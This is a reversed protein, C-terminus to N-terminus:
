MRCNLAWDVKRQMVEISDLPLGADFLKRQKLIYISLKWCKRITVRHANKSAVAKGEATRPGTSKAWPQWRQIIEAQRQRREETWGNGM